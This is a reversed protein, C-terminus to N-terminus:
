PPKTYKARDIPYANNETLLLFFVQMDLTIIKDIICEPQDSSKKFLHFIANKWSFLSVIFRNTSKFSRQRFIVEERTWGGEGNDKLKFYLSEM